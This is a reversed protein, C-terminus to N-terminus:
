MTAATYPCGFALHYSVDAESTPFQRTPSALPPLQASMEKMYVIRM